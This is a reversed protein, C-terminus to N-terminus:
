WKQFIDEAIWGATMEVSLFAFLGDFISATLDRFHQIALRFFDDEGAAATFGIVESNASYGFHVGAAVDNGASNFM